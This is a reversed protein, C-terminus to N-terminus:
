AVHRGGLWVGSIARTARIDTSPDGQVLLLDARRGAEIVGRDTLGFVRAATATAATIAEIPTLGADVLLELEDHLSSGHEPHWPAGAETNADTGAVITLGAAHATALSAKANSYDVPPAIHLRRLLRFMRQANITTVTGQLMTLTPVVAAGRGSLAAAVDPNLGRDVPLHTVVDVGADAALGFATSTVAHAITTLGAGHAAVVLARITELPLSATGPMRPDEIIIKIYDSGDRVRAAVFRAADAASTVVSDAPFGMRRTHAGKAASAPVGAGLLRPLDTRQQLSRTVDLHQNAMDLVTTVGSALASELAAADDVHVHADILGPLLAGGQGDIVTGTPAGGVSAISEGQIQVSTPATFGAGDFVRVNTISSSSTTTM